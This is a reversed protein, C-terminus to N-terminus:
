RKGSFQGVTVLYCPHGAPLVERLVDSTWANLEDASLDLCDDGELELLGNSDFVVAIESAEALESCPWTHGPRSVWARLQSGNATVSVSEVGIRVNGYDHHIAANM